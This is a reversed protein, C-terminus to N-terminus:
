AFASRGAVAPRAPDASFNYPRRRPPRRGLTHTVDTFDATGLDERLKGRLLGNLKACYVPSRSSSLEGQCAPARSHPVCAARHSALSPWFLLLFILVFFIVVRCKLFDFIEQRSAGARM